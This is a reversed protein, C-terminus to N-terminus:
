LDPDYQGFAAQLEAVTEEMGDGQGYLEDGGVAELRQNLAVVRDYEERTADAGNVTFADNMDSIEETHSLYYYARSGGSFDGGGISEYEIGMEGTKSDRCLYWNLSGGAYAGVYKSQLAGDQWYYLTGEITLVFLEKVGNGDLDVLKTQLIGMYPDGSNAENLVNLMAKAAQQAETLEPITVAQAAGGSILEGYQNLGDLMERLACPEVADSSESAREPLPSSSPLAEYEELTYIREVGNEVLRVRGDNLYEEEWSYALEMAGNTFVYDESLHYAAGGSGGSSIYYKGDSGKWLEVSQRGGYCEAGTIRSAKGDKWGYIEFSESDLLSSSVVLYPVGDGALDALYVQARDTEYLGGYGWVSYPEEWFVLQSEPSGYEDFPAIKGSIGDAIIQAFARAQEATMRCRSRDGSYPIGELAQLAAQRDQEEQEERSQSASSETDQSSSEAGKGGGSCSILLLMMALAILLTKKITGM